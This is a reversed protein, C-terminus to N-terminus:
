IVYSDCIKNLKNMMQYIQFVLIVAFLISLTIWANLYTGYYIQPLLKHIFPQLVLMFLSFVECSFVAYQRNSHGLIFIYGCCCILFPLLLYLSILVAPINVKNIVLSAIAIFFIGDGFSIILVRSSLLKLISIGAGLEVEYMKYKQSRYFVFLGSMNIFVACSCLLDGIHNNVIYKFDGDFITNLLLLMFVLLIGQFLWIKRGIFPIQRFLFEFYGIKEGTKYKQFEEQARNVLNDVSNESYIPSTNLARKLDGCLKKGM